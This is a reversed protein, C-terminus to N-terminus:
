RLAVQTLIAASIEGGTRVSGTLRHGAVSPFVQQIDEPVVMNRGDLMAWARAMKLLGLGARPSLGKGESNRRTEILLDQTYDLITESVSIGAAASNWQALNKQNALEQLSNVLNRRDGFRLLSREAEADPYGLELGILFRDLQSEPLPYAGMQDATNQTAIVFFPDPLPLTQGDASIEREEMAQLLASQSRPPARNIEDALLISTFVPGPKFTFQQTDSNFISVGIIDSPLLDSTFQIRKSELGLTLGLTQALTTKGVGPIDEILLHGGAILCSLSLRIQQEKGILVSGIQALVQETDDLTQQLDLSHLNSGM